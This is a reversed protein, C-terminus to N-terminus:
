YISKKKGELLKPLNEVYWARFCLDTGGRFVATRVSAEKCKKMTEDGM